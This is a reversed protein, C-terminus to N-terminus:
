RNSKVEIFEEVLIKQEPLLNADIMIEDANIKNVQEICNAFGNIVYDGDFDDDDEDEKQSNNVIKRENDQSIIGYNKNVAKEEPNKISGESNDSKESKCEEGDSDDKKVENKM